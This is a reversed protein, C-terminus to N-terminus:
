EELLFDVADSLNDYDTDSSDNIRNLLNEMEAAAASDNEDNAEMYGDVKDRLQQNQLKYGQIQRDKSAADAKLRQYAAQWQGNARRLEENEAVLASNEGGVGIVKKSM